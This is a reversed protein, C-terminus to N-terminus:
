CSVGEVGMTKKFYLVTYPASVRIGSKQISACLAKFFPHSFLNEHPKIPSKQFSPYIM